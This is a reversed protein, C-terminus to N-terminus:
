KCIDKFNKKYEELTPLGVEKRRKDVNKEDEMPLPEWKGPGVCQGQTGYRQPKRKTIDNFSSAVRDWLYAYNSPNTEKSKYLKSLMRLVSKQFAPDHDAHQVLLWAQNDTQKGWKSVNFWGHQALLQKIDQTNQWDMLYFRQGYAQQFFIREQENMELEVPKNFLGRMIQDIDFMHQIKSKVWAQNKLDVPIKNFAEIRNKIELDYDLLVQLPKDVSLSDRLDILTNIAAIDLRPDVGKEDIIQTNALVVIGVLKDPDFGIFSSSGYTGGNHWVINEQNLRNWFLAVSSNGNSWTAQTALKVSPLLNQGEVGMMVKLFKIMDTMTSKLAGAGQLASDKNWQWYPVQDGNLFVPTIRSYQEESLFVQTDNMKLPTTITQQLVEVFNKGYLKELGIGVIGAGTNSYEHQSGAPYKPKYSALFSELLTQDYDLYPQLQDKPKMNDPIRPLGSTHNALDIWTVERNGVKPLSLGSNDNYATAIKVKGDIAAQALALGVFGKTVSGIEFVTKDNLNTTEGFSIVKTEFPTVVGVLISRYRREKAQSQDTLKDFRNQMISNQSTAACATQLLGFILIFGM